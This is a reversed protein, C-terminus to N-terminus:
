YYYNIIIASYRLQIASYGYATVVHKWAQLEEVKPPSRSWSVTWIVDLPQLAPM